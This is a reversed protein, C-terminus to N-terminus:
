VLVLLFLIEKLSRYDMYRLYKYNLLIWNSDGQVNVKLNVDVM